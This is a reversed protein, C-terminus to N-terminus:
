AVVAVHITFRANRTSVTGSGTMWSGVSATTRMVEVPIQPESRCRYSTRPWSGIPITSSTRCSRTSLVRQAGVVEGGVPQRELLRRVAM